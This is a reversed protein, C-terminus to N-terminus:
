KWSIIDESQLLDRDLKDIFSLYVHGNPIDWTDVSLNNLIRICTISRKFLIRQVM